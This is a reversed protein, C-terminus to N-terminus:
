PARRTREAVGFRGDRARGQNGVPWQGPIYTGPAFREVAEIILEARGPRRRRWVAHGLSHLVARPGGGDNPKGPNVGPKLVIMLYSRRSNFRVQDIDAWGITQSRKRWVRTVGTADIRMGPLLRMLVAMPLLFAGAFFLPPGLCVVVGILGMRGVGESGILVFITLAELVVLGLVCALTVLLYVGGRRAGEAPIFLEESYAGHAAPM